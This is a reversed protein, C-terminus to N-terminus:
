EGTKKNLGFFEDRFKEDDASGNLNVTSQISKGDVRDLVETIARLDGRAAKALLQLAIVDKTKLGKTTKQNLPNVTILTKTELYQKLLTSLNKSGKPRGKWNTSNGPKCPVLNKLSNEHMM